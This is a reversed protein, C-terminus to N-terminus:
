RWIHESWDNDIWNDYRERVEEPTCSQLLLGHEDTKSLMAPTLGKIEFSSSFSYIAYGSGSWCRM